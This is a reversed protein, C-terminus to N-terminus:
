FRAVGRQRREQGSKSQVGDPSLIVKSSASPAQEANREAPRSLARTRAAGEGSTRLHARELPVAM